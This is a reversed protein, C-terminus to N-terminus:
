PYNGKLERRLEAIENQLTQRLTSIEQKLDDTLAQTDSGTVVREKSDDLRPSEELENQESFKGNAYEKALDKHDQSDYTEIAPEKDERYNQVQEDFGGSESAQSTLLSDGITLEAESRALQEEMLQEHWKLVKNTEAFLLEQNQHLDDEQLGALSSCVSQLLVYADASSDYRNKDIHRAVTSLLQLFTKELPKGNLIQHLHDIEKWLGLIVKDDLEIGLSEVCMQLSSYIDTARDTEVSSTAIKESFAEIVENDDESGPAESLIDEEGTLLEDFSSEETIGLDSEIDSFLDEEEVLEFVVEDEEINGSVPPVVDVDDTVIEEAEEEPPVFVLQEVDPEDIDEDLDFFSDLRQEIETSYEEQGHGLSEEISQEFDTDDFFSDLSEEQESESIFAVTEAVDEIEEETEEVTELETGSYTESTDDTQDEDVLNVPTDELDLEDDIAFVDRGVEDSIDTEAWEEPESSEDDVLPLSESPSESEIEDDTSDVALPVPELNDDEEKSAAPFHSQIEDDFFGGLTGAIEDDINQAEASHEFIEANFISVEDNDALAPALEGGMMPLAEEDSDDDAESEVAVGQLVLDKDLNSFNPEAKEEEEDAFYSDVSIDENGELPLVTNDAPVSLDDDEALDNGQFAPAFPETEEQEESAMSLAPALMDSEEISNGEDVEDEFDVEVDVGQLAVVRNGGSASDSGATSTPEEPQQYGNDMFFNEVDSDVSVSTDLGLAKAEEEAQFGVNEEEPIDAFAPAITDSDVLSGGEDIEKKDRNIAEPAITAGLLTKFANFKEVIPFLIVKEEELTMPTVVLKELNEYFLHLLKFADAHANSKKLKIYAGLTGIGQLLILKPRSGAFKGELRVVEQRLDNLDQDTIEWDIGLVIAKLNLMDNSSYSNEPQKQTKPQSVPPEDVVTEAQKGIHHKLSEFRKVDELLIEKKQEETLDVSSVIKELNHYLTLLLKIASPHSDAKKQYIYKSIKELAQVYVLNIKERAWIGRLDVLEENFQMLIDDTIEWDISLILSKLRSIPSEEDNAFEFLDVSGTYYSDDYDDTGVTLDDDYQNETYQKVM